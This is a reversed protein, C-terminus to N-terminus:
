YRHPDHRHNTAQNGSAENLAIPICQRSLKGATPRGSNRGVGLRFVCADINRRQGRWLAVRGDAGIDTDRFVGEPLNDVDPYFDTREAIRGLGAQEDVHPLLAPHHCQEAIHEIQVKAFRLNL